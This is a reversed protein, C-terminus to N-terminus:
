PAKLMTKHYRGMWGITVKEVSVPSVTSIATFIATWQDNTLQSLEMTITKVKALVTALTDAPVGTVSVDSLNLNQVFKNSALHGFLPPYHDEDIADLSLTEVERFKTEFM